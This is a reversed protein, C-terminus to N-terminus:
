KLFHVGAGYKLTYKIYVYSDPLLVDGNNLERRAIERRCIEGGRYGWQLSVQVAKEGRSVTIYHVYRRDRRFEKGAESHSM